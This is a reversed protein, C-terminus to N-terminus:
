PRVEAAVLALVDACAELEALRETDLLEARAGRAALDELQLMLRELEDALYQRPDPLKEAVRVLARSGTSQIFDSWVTGVVCESREAQELSVAERQAELGAVMLRATFEDMNLADALFPTWGDEGDLYEWDQVASTCPRRVIWPGSM